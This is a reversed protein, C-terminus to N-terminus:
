EVVFAEENYEATIPLNSLIIAENEVLTVVKLDVALFLGFACVLSVYILTNPKSLFKDIRGNRNSLKDSIYYAIKSLPTIIFRDIIKYLWKFIAVFFRVIGRIIKKM